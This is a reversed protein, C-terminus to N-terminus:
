SVPLERTAGLQGITDRGLAAFTVRLEGLHVLREAVLDGLRDSSRTPSASGHRM